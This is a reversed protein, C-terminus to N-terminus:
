HCLGISEVFYVEEGCQMGQGWLVCSGATQLCSRLLVSPVLSAPQVGTLRKLWNRGEWPLGAEGPLHVELWGGCLEPLGQLPPVNGLSWVARLAAAPTLHKGLIHQTPELGAPVM